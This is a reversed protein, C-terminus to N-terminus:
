AVTKPLYKQALMICLASLAHNLQRTRVLLELEKVDFLKVTIREDSDPFHKRDEVPVCDLALFFHCNNTMIAPNPNMNGLSLVRRSTFGTEEELERVAAMTPDKESAEIVGGVTELVTTMSGVRPQEILIARGDLTLALVNIWDPCQLRFYPLTPSLDEFEFSIKEVNFPRTKFVVEKSILKM